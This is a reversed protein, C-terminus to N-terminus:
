FGHKKKQQREKEELEYAVDKPLQGLGLLEEEILETTSPRRIEGNNPAKLESLTINPISGSRGRNTNCGESVTSIKRNDNSNNRDDEMNKNQLETKRASELDSCTSTSLKESAKVRINKVVKTNYVMFGLILIVATLVGGAILAVPWPFSM